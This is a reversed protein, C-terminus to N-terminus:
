LLLCCCSDRDCARLMIVDVSEVVLRLTGRAGVEALLVDPHELYGPEWRGFTNATNRRLINATKRRLVSAVDATHEILGSEAGIKDDEILVRSDPTTTSAQPTPPRRHHRPAQIPTAPRTTNSMIPSPQTRPDALIILLASAKSPPRMHRPLASARSPASIKELPQSRLNSTSGVRM